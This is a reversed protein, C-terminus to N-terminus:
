PLNQKVSPGSSLTSATAERQFGGEAPNAAVAGPYSKKKKLNLKITIVRYMHTNTHTYFAAKPLQNKGEM